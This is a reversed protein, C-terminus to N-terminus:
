QIELRYLTGGLGIVRGVDREALSFFARGRIRGEHVAQYELDIM